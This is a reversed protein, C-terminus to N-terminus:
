HILKLFLLSVHLPSCSYNIFAFFFFYTFFDRGTLSKIRLEAFTSESRILLFLCVFKFIDDEFNRSRWFHRQGSSSISGPSFYRGLRLWGAWRNGECVAMDKEPVGKSAIDVWSKERWQQDGENITSEDKCNMIEMVDNDCCDWRAYTIGGRM